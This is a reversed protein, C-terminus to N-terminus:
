SSQKQAEMELLRKKREPGWRYGGSTGNRQVVRHCPIVLAVPNSACANAVARPASPMGINKAVEGYSMTSGYPIKQLEKWVRWQFATARVDIPLNDNRLDRSGSVYELIPKVWPGLGTTEHLSERIKAKPYEAKLESVLREDGDGVGVFCVGSDTGAVILRGLASDVVLYQIELGEGGNKYMSPSLGLRSNPKRSYLWSSTNYGVDYASRRTSKGLRLNQKLKRTREAELYERPSVGVIRKFIKQLYSPSLGVQQGLTKLDIKSEFNERIYLTAKEVARENALGDDMGSDPICRLCPRFGADKASQASEFFVAQERRPKKSPCTPRCFVKTSSVGYVFSSYFAPDRRLVVTWLEDETMGHAIETEKM